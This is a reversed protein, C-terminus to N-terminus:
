EGQRPIVINRCAKLFQNKYVEAYLTRVRGNADGGEYWMRVVDGEVFVFPSTAWKEDYGGPTEGHLFVLGNRDWDRGNKSTALFLHLYDAMAFMLCYYTDVRFVELNKVVTTEGIKPEPSLVKGKKSWKVGDTSEAMGYFTWGPDSKGFGRYYMLYKDGTKIVSHQGGAGENDWAGPTKRLVPNGEYKVWNVGDESTAYCACGGFGEAGYWM